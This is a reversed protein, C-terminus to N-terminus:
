RQAGTETKKNNHANGATTPTVLELDMASSAAITIPAMTVNTAFVYWLPLDCWHIVFLVNATASRAYDVL